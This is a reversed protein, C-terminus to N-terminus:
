VCVCESAWNRPILLVLATGFGRIREMSGLFRVCWQQCWNVVPREFLFNAMYTNVKLNTIHFTQDMTTVCAPNVRCARIVRGWNAFGSQFKRPCYEDTAMRIDSYKNVDTTPQKCTCAPNYQIVSQLAEWSGTALIRTRPAPSLNMGLLLGVALLLLVVYM